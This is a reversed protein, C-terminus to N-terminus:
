RGVKALRERYRTNVLLLAKRVGRSIAKSSYTAGTVADLDRGITLRDRSSKGRFQKLFRPRKIADGRTERFVLVKVDQIRGNNDVDVLHTIPEHLGLEDLILVWGMDHGNRAARHFTFSTEPIREGLKETLAAREEASPTWTETWTSDAEAFAEAVAEDHSQLVSIHLWEREGARSLAAGLFLIMLAIRLNM